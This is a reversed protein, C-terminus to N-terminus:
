LVSQFIFNFGRISQMVRTGLKKLYKLDLCIKEEKNITKIIDITFLSETVSDFIFRIINENGSQNIVKKPEIKKSVAKKVKKPKHTLRYKRAKKAKAKKEKLEEKRKAARARKAKMKKISGFLGKKESKKNKNDSM